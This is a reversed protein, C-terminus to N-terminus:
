EAEFLCRTLPRYIDELVYLYYLFGKNLAEPATGDDPWAQFAGDPSSGYRLGSAVPEDFWNVDLRWLTGDPLDLNPPVGPARSLPDLVYVYRAAGGQWHITGDAAVGIGDPCREPTFALQDALPGGFPPHDVFDSEGFGRRALEGAWFAEMRDPDTSQMGTRSRDFGNNEEPPFAGFAESGIWGAMMAMADNDLTDTWLGPAEIYWGSTGDPPSSETSHCCVCASAEVQDTVWDYEALWEADDYRPDDEPTNAEAPAPWYPRQLWVPECSVYDAFHRGPETSGSIANWTCVQDKPGNGPTEGPLPDVCIKEFPKFPDDAGDLPTPPNTGGCPEAPVYEGKAFGCGTALGSCSTGPLDPFVITYAEVTGADVFCQGRIATKECGQDWEVLGPDTGPMPSACNEEIAEPTWESGLYERCEQDNSFGNVYTCRAIAEGINPDLEPAPGCSTLSVLSATLGVVLTAFTRM